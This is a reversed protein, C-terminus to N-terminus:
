RGDSFASFLLTALMSVIGLVIVLQMLTFGNRKRNEFRNRQM